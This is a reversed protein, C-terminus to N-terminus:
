RSGEEEANAALLVEDESIESGTMERVLHGRRLVVVRDSLAVLEPLDSSVLLISMGEDALRAVTEHILQKAGIDVGRTPEDLMLVSPGTALWKGLLIKQQNGGSLQSVLRAPEAPYLQLQKAQQDFIRRARGSGVLTRDRVQVGSIMNTLLDLSLALGRLKRDETLYVLGRRIRKPMGYSTVEEGDLFILGEDTRDLGAIARELETRGSGALGGVGLVEGARLTFSVDHFVGYRSLREVRLREEGPANKRPIRVDGVSRGVMMRVLDAESVEQIPCTNVKRGDRLVTVRDAVTFIEPLHHSIYIICLGERKWDAIIGFLRTVETRSLASTPEDMILIAPNNSLAKAIEVLQAEHQSLTEVAADPDIGPLGVRSLWVQAEKRMAARDLWGGRKRPLRGALLNEAISIPLALSLEQYIMEIGHAKAQAPSHLPCEEGNILIRGTYDAFSGALMKMLTSKGAGNEGMLAHVEGARACLDVGDVALAGPFRKSVGEMRLADIREDM